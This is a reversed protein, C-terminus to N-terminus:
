RVLKVIPHWWHPSRSGYYRWCRLVGRRCDSTREVPEVGRNRVIHVCWEGKQSVLYLALEEDVLM